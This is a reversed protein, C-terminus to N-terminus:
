VCSRAGKGATGADVKTASRVILGDADAIDTACAFGGTPVVVDWGTAKLLNIGRDSIKDAILIKM